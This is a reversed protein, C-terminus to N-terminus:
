RDQRGGCPQAQTQYYWAPDEVEYVFGVGCFFGVEVWHEAQIDRVTVTIGMQNGLFTSFAPFIQGLFFNSGLFKQVWFIKKVSFHKQGLFKVWFIKLGFFIKVGFFYQDWFITSRFFHQCFLFTSGM